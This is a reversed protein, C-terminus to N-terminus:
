FKQLLRRYLWQVAQFFAKLICLFVNINPSNKHNFLSNSKYPLYLYTDGKNTEFVIGFSHKKM